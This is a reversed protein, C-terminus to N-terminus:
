FLMCYEETCIVNNDHIRQVQLTSCEATPLPRTMVISTPWGDRHRHLSMPLVAPLVRLGQEVDQMPAIYDTHVYSKSLCCTFCKLLGKDVRSTIM